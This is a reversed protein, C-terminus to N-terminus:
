VANRGDFGDWSRLFKVFTNAPSSFDNYKWIMEQRSSNEMPVIRTGGSDLLVPATKMSLPLCHLGPYGHPGAPLFGVAAKGAYVAELVDQSTLLSIEVDPYSASFSELLEMMHDATTPDTFAISLIKKGNEACKSQRELFQDLQRLCHFLYGQGAILAFAAVVIWM